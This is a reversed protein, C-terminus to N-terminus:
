VDLAPTSATMTPCGNLDMEMRVTNTAASFLLADPRCDFYGAVGMTVSRRPQRPGGNGVSVSPEVSFRNPGLSSRRQAVSPRRLSPIGGSGPGSPTSTASSLSSPFPLSMNGNPIHPCNNEHFNLAIGVSGSNTRSHASSFSAVPSISRPTSTGSAPGSPVLSIISTAPSPFRTAYPSALPQVAGNNLCAASLCGLPPPPPHEVTSINPLKHGLVQEEPSSVAIDDDTLMRHCEDVYSSDQESGTPLVRDFCDNLPTPIRNLTSSFSWETPTPAFLRDVRRNYAEDGDKDNGRSYRPKIAPPNTPHRIIVQDLPTTPTHPSHPPQQQGNRRTVYYSSTNSPLRSHASSSSPSTPTHLNPSSAHSPMILPPPIRVSLNPKSRTTQVRVCKAMAALLTRSTRRPGIHAPEVADVDSTRLSHQNIMPLPAQQGLLSTAALIANNRHSGRAIV